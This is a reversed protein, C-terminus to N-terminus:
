AARGHSVGEGLSKTASTSHTSPERNALTKKVTCRTPQPWINPRNVRKAHGSAM